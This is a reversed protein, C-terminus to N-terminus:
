NRDETAGSPSRWPRARPGGTRRATTAIRPRGQPRGGGARPPANRAILATAIRPRGQPRGGSDAAEGMEEPPLTAIRPRGQPRGGGRHGLDDQGAGHRQSGRDGRLAVA